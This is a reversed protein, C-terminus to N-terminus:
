KPNETAEDENGEKENKDRKSDDSNQSDAAAGEDSDVKTESDVSHPGSLVNLSQAVYDQGDFKATVSVESGRVLDDAKFQAPDFRVEYAREDSKNQVALIGSRLDVHNVQGYLTFEEGPSALVSLDRITRRGAQGPEFHATVLAGPRVESISEAKGGNSTVAANPDLTFTFPRASLSDRLELVRTKPDFRVVQGSVDAADVKTIVQIQKAYIKRQYLQTDLYVPDGKRIAMYSLDAGNRTVQTRDDFIVDMTKGGYVSVVMRNRIPDIERVTGGILTVKKKPVPPVSIRPDVEQPDNQPFTKVTPTTPADPDAATTHDQPAVAAPAPAPSSNNVANDTAAAPDTSQQTAATQAAAACTFSLLVIAFSLQKMSCLVEAM